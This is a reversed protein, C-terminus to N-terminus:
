AEHPAETPLPFRITFRAGGLPSEDVEIGGGHKEVIGHVVALGLGSGEGSPKTTYFPEFVRSRVDDPVGPGDDEVVLEAHGASIGQSIRVRGGRTAQCANRILNTIAEEVRRAELRLTVEDQGRDFKVVTGTRSAVESAAAAAGEVLDALSVERRRGPESRAFDMLQRIIAEMRRVQARIAALAGHTDDGEDQDRLLRQAQGDVVSLPSGLEHAVGSALEGVAALKEAGALRAQLAHETRRREDLEGAAEELRDLMANFSRALATLESPGSPEARHGTEGSGVRTMSENLRSLPGGVAARHGRLVLVSVVAMGLLLLGVARLRLSAIYEEFDSQRRTVQLLGLGRGWPDTLPVFASYVRRGALSGFEGAREGVAVLEDIREPPGEPDAGGFSSVIEGDPGYVYAGYVRGISLASRLAESVTGPRDREMAHVLPLRLARAVLEVDDKLRREAESEVTHLLWFIAGGLALLLPALVRLVLATRLSM